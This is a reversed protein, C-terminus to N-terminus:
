VINKLLNGEISQDSNQQQQRRSNKQIVMGLNIRLVVGSGGSAWIATRNEAQYTV